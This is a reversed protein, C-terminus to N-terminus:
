AIQHDGLDREAGPHRVPAGDFALPGLGAHRLRELEADVEDVRCVDIGAAPGLLEEAFHEGFPRAIRVNERRLEVERHRLGVATERALLNRLLDVGGQTPQAGVVDVEVLAV